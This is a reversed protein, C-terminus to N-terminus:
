KNQLILLLVKSMWSRLTYFTLILVNKMKSLFEDYTDIIEGYIIWNSLQHFFTTNITKIIINAANSTTDYGSHLYKQLRGILLCGCLNETIIVEIMSYLDDFLMKYGDIASLIYTLPLQPNQLFKNELNIIEKRYPELAKELGCAFAKIYLGQPLNEYEPSDSKDDKKYIQSHVARNFGVIKHYRRPIELIKLLLNKEAPHLFEHLEFLNSYDDESINPKNFLYFLTEHIM